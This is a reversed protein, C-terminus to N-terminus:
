NKENQEKKFAGCVCGRTMIIRMECSCPLPLRRTIEMLRKEPVYFTDKPFALLSVICYVSLLRTRAKVIVIEGVIEEWLKAITNSRANVWPVSEGLLKEPIDLRYKWGIVPKAM